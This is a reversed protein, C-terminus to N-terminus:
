RLRLTELTSQMFVDCAAAHALRCSGLYGVRMGELEFHFEHFFLPGRDKDLFTLRAESGSVEPYQRSALSVLEFARQSRKREAITAEVCAAISINPPMPVREIALVLEAGDNTMIELRQRTLDVVSHVNTLQLVADNCYYPNM